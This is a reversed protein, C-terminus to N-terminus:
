EQYDFTLYVYGAYSKWYFTGPFRINRNADIYNTKQLLLQEFERLRMHVFKDDSTKLKVCPLTKYGLNDNSIFVLDDDFQFNDLLIDSPDLKYYAINGQFTQTVGVFRIKLENKLHKPQINRM